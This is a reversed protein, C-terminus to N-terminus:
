YLGNLLSFLIRMSRQIKGRETSCHTRIVWDDLPLVNPKPGFFQPELGQQTAFSFDRSVLILSKEKAVWLL